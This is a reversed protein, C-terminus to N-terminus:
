ILRLIPPGRRALRAAEFIMAILSGRHPLPHVFAAGKGLADHLGIFRMNQPAATAAYRVAAIVISVGV